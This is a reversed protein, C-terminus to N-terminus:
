YLGSFSLCVSTLPIGLFLRFTTFYFNHYGVSVKKKMKEM